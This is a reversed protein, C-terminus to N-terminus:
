FQKSISGLAWDEKWYNKKIASLIYASATILIKQEQETENSKNLKNWVNQGPNCTLGERGSGPRASFILKNKM